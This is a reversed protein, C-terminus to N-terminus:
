FVLRNSLERIGASLMALDLEPAGRLELLLERCAEWTTEHATLWDNLSQTAGVGQSLATQTLNRHLAYLDDRLASRALSQWRNERPLQTVAERLGNLELAHGLAYYNHAITELPVACQQALDAIDFFAAAYDLRALVESLAEPAGGERCRALRHAIHEDDAESILRPLATLLTSIAAQYTDIFSRADLGTRMRRLVHRTAREILTRVRIMMEIQLDAILRHDLQEIATWTAEACFLQQAIWFARTIEPASMATDESLRFIFTIGMRNVVHNALQNSIIERRLYHNPLHHASLHKLTDPFYSELVNFFIPEDPLNSALLAQDLSIKSHAMLIAVEPATFGTNARRRELLQQRSPLGERVPNLRGERELLNMLRSQASLMQVSSFRNIALIQTQLYNNRLVLKAVDEEMSALLENRKRATLEGEVLARDLLIKINVEHDSCDVGASNDIADSFILGGNLAFEIRAAQTLGLNGGEGIVKVRVDCADVRVADNSRDNADQHTQSKAKIYTGIGGNYLLDARATLIARILEDPSCFEGKLDFCEAMEPSIPVRKLKRDFVGGGKSILAQDYDRWSSSPLEFLRKRENFSILPDPNPDIFIHRHDFAAILKVANSLLLGNGFVDGSMDGIGIVTVPTTQIDISLHRFNRKVSEWAGRATIGMKKHSYGRSGGSAFADGLWFGHSLSVENAADSFGATGKDAAVVLYPDEDDFCVTRQPRLIQGGSFNDTISLLGSIFLRYCALGEALWTERDANSAQKVVFGGKSGMPVIVSNKMMQARLLALVETRFDEMRDSWRLGGRAVKSGRLHVGEMQPSYLWTEYLPRPQPLFEVHESAIKFALCPLDDHAAQYYNTRVIALILSLLANLIRDEDINEVGRLQDQIQTALHHAHDHDHHDPHFRAHFLMVLQKSINAHNALCAELYSQNFTLGGQRLYKALARMLAIEQWDLHAALALRNFGDCEAQGTSLRQLLAQFKERLGDEELRAEDPVVLGFDNIWLEAGDIPSVRFPREDRVRIGLSELLPLSESLSIPEGFRFVKLHYRGARRHFPRYLKVALTNNESDLSSLQLVDLVASRPNFEERYAAPFADRYHAFLQNGQVEGSHDILAQHLEEHWGRVIRAIEQELEKENYDPLSGHPTHIRYLVRALHWDAIAVSFEASLGGFSEILLTEIKLRLETNFSDRPVFVLCSVSRHYHDKRTFLRTRPREQLNVLGEAIQALTDPPTEFLEDRPYTELVFDLMKAKYSAPLYDLKQVVHAIKQRLFPVHKPSAQYASATYLGLFRREGTVTGNPAFKRISIYDLYAARHITSRTESRNLLLIQADNLHDRLAQPLRSFSESYEKNGQNKLIGLGSEHVIKLASEGDKTVLDYDCFGMFLFHGGSLWRLFAASEKAEENLHQTLFPNHEIDLALDRAQQHMADSDSVMIQVTALMENLEAELTKIMTADSIRDIQAHIFSELAGHKQERRTIALASGHQDREVALVPHVLTHLRLNNRALLLTLSDILFPRDDSVIEIVSHTSQWGHQDLNPHYIRLKPTNKPRTQAFELHSCVAGLVDQASLQRLDEVEAAEFYARLIPYIRAAEQPTLTQQAYHEIDAILAALKPNISYSM